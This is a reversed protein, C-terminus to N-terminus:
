KEILNPNEYINGIRVVDYIETFLWIGLLRWAHNHWKVEATFEKDDGHKLKFKIIDRDYVENEEKDKLGTFQMLLPEYIFGDEGSWEQCNHLYSRSHEWAFNELPEIGIISPYIMKQGDWARFKIERM